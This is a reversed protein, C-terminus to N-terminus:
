SIKILEISLLPILVILTWFRLFSIPLIIWTVDPTWNYNESAVLNHKKCLSRTTTKWCNRVETNGYHCKPSYGSFTFLHKETDAAGCPYVTKTWILTYILTAFTDTHHPYATQTWHVSELIANRHSPPALNNFLTTIKQKRQMCFTNKYDSTVHIIKGIEKSRKQVTSQTLEM